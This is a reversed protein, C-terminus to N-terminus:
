DKLKESLKVFKFDPINNELYNELQETEKKMVEIDKILDEIAVTVKNVRIKHVSRLNANRKRIYEDGNCKGLVQRQHTELGKQSEFKRKCLDCIFEKQKLM